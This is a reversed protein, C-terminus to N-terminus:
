GDNFKHAPGPRCKRAAQLPALVPHPLRLRALRHEDACKVTRCVLVAVTVLGTLVTSLLVSLSALKLMDLMAAERVCFSTSLTSRAVALSAKKIWILPAGRAGACLYQVTRADRAGLKFGRHKHSGLGAAHM